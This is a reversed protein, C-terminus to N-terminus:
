YEELTHTPIYERVLMSVKDGWLPFVPIPCVVTVDLLLSHDGQQYM